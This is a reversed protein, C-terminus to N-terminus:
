HLVHLIEKKSSRTGVRVQVFARFYQMISTAAVMASHFGLSLLDAEKQKDM